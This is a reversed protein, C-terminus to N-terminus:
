RMRCWTACCRASATLIALVKDSAAITVDISHDGSISRGYSAAAAVIDAIPVPRPRVGFDEREARASVQVDDVLAALVKSESQITEIARQQIVPLVSPDILEASRRIGALPSALEHAVMATFDARLVALDELRRTYMREQALLVTREAAINRLENIVGTTVVVTFALRLVDSTTFAPSYASPWLLTSSGDRLSCWRQRSGAFSERTPM